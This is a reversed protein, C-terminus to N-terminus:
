QCKKSQTNYGSTVHERQTDKRVRLWFHLHCLWTRSKNIEFAIRLASLLKTGIRSNLLYLHPRCKIRFRLNRGKLRTTKKQMHKALVVNQGRMSNLFKAM